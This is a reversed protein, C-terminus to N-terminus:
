KRSQQHLDRLTDQIYAQFTGPANTLGFPMVTYEFLGLHTRFATKWEDGERIRILNFANKLDLVSFVKCGQVRDLLDDVLPLPYRNKKTIANLGRYDVCLRLEGTKKRVFLVPSAASSTSRRIFGKRLNEEVYDFLTQRELTSLHYLPGFPPQKGDELEIAMNFGERHPPLKEVDVPSFVSAYEHYKPPVHALFDDPDPPPEPPPTSSPHDSTPPQSTSTDTSADLRAAAITYGPTGLPHYWLAGSPNNRAFKRFRRSGILAINLPASEPDSGPPAFTPRPFPFSPSSVSAPTSTSAYLGHGLGAVVSPSGSVASNPGSGMDVTTPTSTLTSTPTSDRSVTLGYGLVHGLPPTSPRPAHWPVTAFSLYSIGRARPLFAAQDSRAISDSHSTTLVRGRLGLGLGVSTAPSAQISSVVAPPLVLGMGKGLISTPHVRTHVSCCSLALSRRVWDIAPNHRQLWDLGLIVPYSVSVVALAIMESHAQVSLSAVVDHTVLGSAIPRDDVATIPVPEDKLRRPLGHRNAFSLSICSTTAGSDVLAYTHIPKRNPFALTVSVFFHDPSSQSSHVHSSLRFRPAGAPRPIWMGDKLRVHSPAGADPAQTGSTAPLEPVTTNSGALSKGELPCGQLGERHSRPM